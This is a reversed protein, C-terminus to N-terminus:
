RRDRLSYYILAFIAWSILGFFAVLALSLFRRPYEATEALTPPLYIALYRNQQLAKSRAIEFQGYASAYRQGAFDRERSLNEYETLLTSFGANGLTEETAGLLGREEKLRDQLVELRRATQALRPDTSETRERLLDQTVRAEQHQQELSTILAMRLALDAEPDAMQTRTRFASLRNQWAVLEAKAASLDQEAYSMADDRAHKSLLNLQERSAELIAAAILQADRPDFARVRVELLGTDQSHVVQVARHWYHLLAERSSNRPLSFVFDRAEPSSFAFTLDVQENVQTVMAQSRIYAFLVASDQTTSRQLNGLSGFMDVPAPPEQQHVSFGVYSVFQDAAYTWLYLGSCLIPLVVWAIFSYALFRHRPKHRAARAPAYILGDVNSGPASLPKTQTLPSKPSPRPPAVFDEPM